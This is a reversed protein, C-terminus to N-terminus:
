MCKLWKEKAEKYTACGLYKGSIDGRILQNPLCPESTTIFKDCLEVIMNVEAAEVADMDLAILKKIKDLGNGNTKYVAPVEYVNTEKNFVPSYCPNIRVFNASNSLTPDLVSYAIFTASDPPDDLISTAMKRIDNKFLFSTGTIVMENNKNAECKIKDLPDTSTAVDTLIVKNGMGTGISLICCDQASAGNTIAEVLGALVPNNFGSVAGDWFWSTNRYVPDKFDPKKQFIFPSVTAPADFYNVPANSSAHIAHGLPMGYYKNSFLDTRSQMNSRFFSVRQRYYDFGIILLQLSEKGILAPLENLPTDVIYKQRQAFLHDKESLVKTLGILKNQTSYKPGIGLLGRFLGFRDQKFIIKDLFSLKSFVQKRSNEDEFVNCIESLLMDNCLCALVLSGGSNGIALDFKRLLAHGRIDGYLDLLVKAQVLAWSGGGDLSLIKYSM